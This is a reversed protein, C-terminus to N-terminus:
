PDPSLRTSFRGPHRATRGTDLGTPSGSPTRLRRAPLGSGNHHFEAGLGPPGAQYFALDIVTAQPRGGAVGPAPGGAARPVPVGRGGRSRGPRAAVQDEPQRGRRGTGGPRTVGVGPGRGGGPTWSDRRAGSRLRRRASPGAVPSCPWWGPASWWL